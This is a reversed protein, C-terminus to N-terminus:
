LDGADDCAEAVLEADLRLLRRNDWLWGVRVQREGAGLGCATLGFRVADGDRRARGRAVRDDRPAVATADAVGM